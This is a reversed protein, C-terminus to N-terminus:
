NSPVAPPCPLTREQCSAEIAVYRVPKNPQRALELEARVGASTEWGDLMLVIVQDCRELHPRDFTEWFSWDTPLGEDVLPHSHVIPSYVAQGSRLLTAAVKCAARFREQRVGPDPHSYPVALYIM